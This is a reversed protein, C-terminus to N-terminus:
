KRHALIANGCTIRSEDEEKSPIFVIVDFGEAKLSEEAQKYPYYFDYGGDTMMNNEIVARTNHMPTIKCLFYQPDFLGRLYKADIPADTLAFNLAIKRGKITDILWHFENSIYRLAMSEPMTKSRIDEDTTNVSIQLGAEGNFENKLKLWRLLFNNIEGNKWPMITSVVPHFGWGLADFYGKLSYASNIVEPNWTPEGMRAYHLNIRKTYTVEPHLSLANKVQNMLDNYTANKGPGVRPVDCFKCGMSCGYQSSITIVWKNELSLLDGHPVGNIESTLGLFDAKINKEQGYDGLSLFELPLGLEGKM